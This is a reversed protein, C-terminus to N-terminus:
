HMDSWKTTSPGWIQQFVMLWVKYEMFVKSNKNTIIKNNIDGKHILIVFSVMTCLTPFGTSDKIYKNDTSTMTIKPTCDAHKNTHNGHLKLIMRVKM